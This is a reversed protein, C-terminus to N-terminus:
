ALVLVLASWNIAAASQWFRITNRRIFEGFSEARGSQLISTESLAASFMADPKFQEAALAVSALPTVKTTPEKVLRDINSLINEIAMGAIRRERKIEVTAADGWDTRAVDSLDDEDRLLSDVVLVRVKEIQKEIPEYRCYTQQNFPFPLLTAAEAPPPEETTLDRPEEIM